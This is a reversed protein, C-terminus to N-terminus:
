NLVSKGYIKPNQYVSVFVKRTAGLASKSLTYNDAFLMASDNDNRTFVAIRPINIDARSYISHSSVVQISEVGLDCPFLSPLERLLPVSSPVSAINSCSANIVMANCSIFDELLEVLDHGWPLDFKGGGHAPECHPSTLEEDM